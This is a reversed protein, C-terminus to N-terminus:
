PKLNDEIKEIRRRTRSISNDGSLMPWPNIFDTAVDVPLLLADFAASLLRM